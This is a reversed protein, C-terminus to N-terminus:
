SMLKLPFIGQKDESIEAGPFHRAHLLRGSYMHQLSLLSLPCGAGDCGMGSALPREAACQEQRNWVPWVHEAEVSSSCNCIRGYTSGLDGGLAFTNSLLIDREIRWMNRFSSVDSLCQLNLREKIDPVQIVPCCEWQRGRLHRVRLLMEPLNEPKQLSIYWLVGVCPSASCCM